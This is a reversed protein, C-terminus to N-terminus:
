LSNPSNLRERLEGSVCFSLHLKFFGKGFSNKMMGNTFFYTKLLTERKRKEQAEFKKKWHYYNVAV